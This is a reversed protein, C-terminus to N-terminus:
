VANPLRTPPQTTHVSAKPTPPVLSMASAPPNPAMSPIASTAIIAANRNWESSGDCHKPKPPPRPPPLKLKKNWSNNDSPPPKPNPLKGNKHCEQIYSQIQEESLTHFPQPPIHAQTCKRQLLRSSVRHGRRKRLLLQWFSKALAHRIAQPPSYPVKGMCLKRCQKEAALMAQTRSNDISELELQQNTTLTSHVQSNLVRARQLLNAQQVSSLLHQLYKKVTEPEQLKLRRGTIPAHIPSSGFTSPIDIDIWAMRHDWTDFPTYGGQQIKLSPSSWIGDIVRSKDSCICSSFSPTTTPHSSIVSEQLGIEHLMKTFPASLICGNFDGGIIIYEGQNLRSQLEQCLDDTWQSLPDTTIDSALLRRCHQQYM